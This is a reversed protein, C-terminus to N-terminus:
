LPPLYKKLLPALDQRIQPPILDPTTVIATELARGCACERKEPIRTIAEKIVRRAGAVNKKLTEIIMAATVPECIEQWCDYDTILALSAFCVEAERALKAEPLVTMGIVGAGWSRYLQSEARTSFHPGEMTIWTGGRHMTIGEKIGSDYLIASLVPCFPDGFPAHVVIGNGFFTTHRQTTRDIIQDPVVMEGPRLEEKLSGASNISIIWEVGLSKLAFINARSPVEGPNLRHGAGHRPVFAVSRRGLRGVTILDSPKGFPTDVDLNHVDTLGEIDYLGTGGIVGINAESM